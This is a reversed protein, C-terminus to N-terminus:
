GSKRRGERIFQLIEERQLGLDIGPVDFPSRKSRDPKLVFIQGDRRRIRVAGERKARDLIASLSQRAESYTYEKM